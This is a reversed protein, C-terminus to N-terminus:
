LSVFSGNFRNKTSRSGALLLLSMFYLPWEFYPKDM